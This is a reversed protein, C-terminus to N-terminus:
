FRLDKKEKRYSNRLDNECDNFTLIRRFLYRLYFKFGEPETVSTLSKNRQKHM